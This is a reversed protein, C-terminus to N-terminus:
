ERYFYKFCVCVCVCVCVRACVCAGSLLGGIVAIMLTSALLALQYAAQVAATRESGPEIGLLIQEGTLGSVNGPARAPFVLYLSHLPFIVIVLEVNYM